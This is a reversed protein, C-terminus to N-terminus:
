CHLVFLKTAHLKTIKSCLKFLYQASAHAFSKVGASSSSSVSKVEVDTSTM